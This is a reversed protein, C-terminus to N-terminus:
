GEQLLEAARRALRVTQAAGSRRRRTRHGGLGPPGLSLDHGGPREAGLAVTVAEGAVATRHFIGASLAYVDGRTYAGGDSPSVRVTRDTPRLEDVDDRSLVEFVRLDPGDDLDGLMNSLRGHLLLSLLDWSHCHWSSTTSAPPPLEPSWLHLCVGTGRSREIPLCLFGLPHLVGEAPLSGSAILGLTRGAWGAVEEAGSGERLRRHLEGYRM